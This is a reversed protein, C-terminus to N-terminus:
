WWFNIGARFLGAGSTNTTEGTRSDVFEPPGDDVKERILGLADMHLGIHRSLRFEVGLGAHAGVYDRGISDNWGFDCYSYACYDYSTDVEAHAMHLGGIGYVQVVHQPNFYVIGSLSGAVEIRDNGDYDVGGVIDTGVDLAFYPSPRWRFSAGLGGLGAGEDRALFAAGELRLNLGFRERWRRARKKKPEPPPPPAALPEGDEGVVVVRQGPQQRVIVVTEGGGNGEVVVTKSDGEAEVQTAKKKKKTKKKKKPKPEADGGDDAQAGSAGDDGGDEADLNPKPVEVEECFWSGPPCDDDALAPASLTLPVLLSASLLWPRMTM